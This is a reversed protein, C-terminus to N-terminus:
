YPCGDAPAWDHSPARAGRHLGFDETWTGSSGFGPIGSASVGTGVSRYLPTLINRCHGDSAMWGSVVSAPTPFGTAINEGATSWAFGAATIRAAFNPGHTFEDHGVMFDTWRQASRDLRGSAHLGPLGRERRQANVLCVVARGLQRHSAGFVSSHAHACGRASAAQGRASAARGGANAAPGRASAAPTLAFAIGALAITLTVLSCRLAGRRLASGLRLGRAMDADNM